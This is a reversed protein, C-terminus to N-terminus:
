AARPEMDKSHRPVESLPRTNIHPIGADPVARKYVFKYFVEIEIHAGMKFKNQPRNCHGGGRRTGEEM